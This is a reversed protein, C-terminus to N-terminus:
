PVSSFDPDSGPIFADFAALLQERYYDAEQLIEHRAGDITILNGLRLRRCFNEIAPTSVVRDMGAAVILAPIRIKEVFGPEQVQQMATTAASVWAATPRGSGLEPALRLLERNRQFRRPDSTLNNNDFSPMEGQRPGNTVHLSGLGVLTLARTLFHALRAHPGDGALELLPAVLVMRRVRNALKPAALLATLSGSSHALIYYPARCDPLLVDEFFQELDSVYDNFSRVYGRDQARILRTSGGQGRWDLNAVAFGRHSLDATTEFYKEIFENRGQLVIVTGKLPRGSAPTITYRLDHGDHTKLTGPHTGSPIPNALTEVLPRMPKRLSRLLESRM